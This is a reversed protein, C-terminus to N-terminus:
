QSSFKKLKLNYTRRIEEAGKKIYVVRDHMTMHKTKKYIEDKWKWVEELSKDIKMM